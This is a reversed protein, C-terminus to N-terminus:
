VCWLSVLLFWIIIYGLRRTQALVFILTSFMLVMELSDVAHDLTLLFVTSNTRTFPHYSCLFLIFPLSERQHSHDSLWGGLM